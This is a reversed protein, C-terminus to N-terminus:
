KITAATSPASASVPIQSLERSATASPGDPGTCTVTSAGSGRGTVPGTVREPGTSEGSVTRTSSWCTVTAPVEVGGTPGISTLPKLSIRTTTYAGKTAKPTPIWGRM